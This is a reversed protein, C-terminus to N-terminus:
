ADVRDKDKDRHHPSIESCYCSVYVKKKLAFKKEKSPNEISRRPSGGSFNM